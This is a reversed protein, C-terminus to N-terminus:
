KKNKQKKLYFFASKNEFVRKTFRSKNETKKFQFCIKLFLSFLLNKNESKKKFLVDFRLFKKTHKRLEVSEGYKM